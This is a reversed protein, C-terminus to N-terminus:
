GKRRTCVRARPAYRGISISTNDNNIMINDSKLDSHSYGGKYLLLTVGLVIGIVLRCDECDTYQRTLFYLSLIILSVLFIINM